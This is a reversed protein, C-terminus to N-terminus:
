KQKQKKEKDKKAGIAAWLQLRYYCETFLHKPHHRIIKEMM